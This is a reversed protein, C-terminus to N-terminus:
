ALKPGPSSLHKRISPAIPWNRSVSPDCPLKKWRYEELNLDTKIIIKEIGWGSAAPLKISRLLM